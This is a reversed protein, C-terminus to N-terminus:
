QLKTNLLEAQGRSVFLSPQELIAALIKKADEKQNNEAMVPHWSSAFMPRSKVDEPPRRSRNSAVKSKAWLTSFGVTRRWHRLPQPPYMKRTEDALKMALQSKSYNNQSVRVLCLAMRVSLANPEKLHAALLADEAKDSEGQYQLINGLILQADPTRPHCNSPLARTVGSKM